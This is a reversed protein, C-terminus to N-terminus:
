ALSISTGEFVKEITGAVLGNATPRYVTENGLPFGHRVITLWKDGIDNEVIIGSSACLEEGGNWGCSLVFGPCLNPIYCTDYRLTVTPTIFRRTAEQHEPM